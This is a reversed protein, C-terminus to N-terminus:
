GKKNRDQKVKTWISPLKIIERKGRTQVAGWDQNQYLIYMIISFFNVRLM